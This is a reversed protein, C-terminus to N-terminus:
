PERNIIGAISLRFSTVPFQNEPCVGVGGQRTAGDSSSFLKRNM